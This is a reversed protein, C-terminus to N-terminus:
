IYLCIYLQGKALGIKELSKTLRRSITGKERSDEKSLGDLKSLGDQQCSKPIAWQENPKSLAGM